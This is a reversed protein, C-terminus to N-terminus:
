GARAPRAEVIRLALDVRLRVDPDDLDLGHRARLQKVGRLCRMAAEGRNVIAIRQMCLAYLEKSKRGMQFVM